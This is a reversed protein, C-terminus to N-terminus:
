VVKEARIKFIVVNKPVYLMSNNSSYACIKGVMVQINDSKKMDDMWFLQKKNPVYRLFLQM